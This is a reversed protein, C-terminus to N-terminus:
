PAVRWHIFASDYPFALQTDTAYVALVVASPPVPHWVIPYTQTGVGPENLVDDVISGQVAIDCVKGRNDYWVLNVPSAGKSYIRFEEGSYNTDIVAPTVRVRRAFDPVYVAGRGPTPQDITLTMLGAATPHRDGANTFGAFLKNATSGSQAVAVRILASTNILVELDAVTKVGTVGDTRYVIGVNGPSAVFAGAGNPVQNDQLQFQPVTPATFMVVSVPKPAYPNRTGVRTVTSIFPATNYVASSPITGHNGANVWGQLTTNPAPSVNLGDMTPTASVAAIGTAGGTPSPIVVRQTFGLEGADTVHTGSVPVAQASLRPFDNVTIAPIGLAFVAVGGYVRIHKAHLVISGGLMPWHALMVNQLGSETGWQIQVWIPEVDDGNGPTLTSFVENGRRPPVQATNLASAAYAVDQGVWVISGGNPDSNGSQFSEGGIRNVRNLTIRWARARKSDVSVLPLLAGGQAGLQFAAAVADGLRSGRLDSEDMDNM